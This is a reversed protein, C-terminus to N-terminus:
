LNIYIPCNSNMNSGDRTYVPKEASLSCKVMLFCNPKVALSLCKCSNHSDSSCCIYNLAPCSFTGALLYSFLFILILLSLIIKM